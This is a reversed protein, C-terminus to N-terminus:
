HILTTTTEKSSKFTIHTEVLKNVETYTKSKHSFLITAEAVSKALVDIIETAKHNDLAIRLV